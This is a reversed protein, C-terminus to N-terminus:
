TKIDFQHKIAEAIIKAMKVPVANGVMKYGDNV